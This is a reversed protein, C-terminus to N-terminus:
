QPLRKYKLDFKKDMLKAAKRIMIRGNRMTLKKTIYIHRDIANLLDAFKHITVGTPVWPSKADSVFCDWVHELTEDIAPDYESLLRGNSMIGPKSLM